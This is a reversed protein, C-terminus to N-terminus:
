PEDGAGRSADYFSDRATVYRWALEPALRPLTVFVDYANRRPEVRQRDMMRTGFLAILGLNWWVCLLVAGVGAARAPKPWATAAQWLASLGVILIITVGVFRRQGFAGAVTWSEVAGSVYVQLAVMLLLLAAIRRADPSMHLVAPPDQGRGAGRPARAWSRKDRSLARHAVRPAGDAAVRSRHKVDPSLVASGTLGRRALMVLGALAALALPTWFFFGHNPDFLVQLAHPSHWSMKRTVYQSPGPRGNLTMYALLQPIWGVVFAGAGAAAAAIRARLQPGRARLTDIAFDVAPGAVFFVDQERVMTMLAGTVGLALAGAPTWRGRVHLWVTVFLAVAFASTAHAFPPAIYMYFLLPTGLWVALAPLLPVRGLLLRAARIGLLVALFGYVASGYAVAAVYPRSFGDAVVDSGLARATRVGADAAAYFPSWLIASGITGFNIRRGTVTERVLFAEHFDQTQAIDREHFYRYENEFSVDRDFWLSRLYSVYQVEDSSYIRTTVAPLTVLFVLLLVALERPSLRFFGATRHVV